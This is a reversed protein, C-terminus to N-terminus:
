KKEPTKPFRDKILEWIADWFQIGLLTSIHGYISRLEFIAATGAVAQTVPLDSTYLEQFHGAVMVSVPYLIFKRITLMAKEMSFTDGKHKAKWSGLALDVIIFLYLSGIFASVPIFLSLLYAIAVSILGGFLGKVKLLVSSILMAFDTYESNMIDYREREM